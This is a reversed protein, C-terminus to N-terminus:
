KPLEGAGLAKLIEADKNVYERCRGGDFPVSSLDRKLQHVDVKDAKAKIVFVTGKSLDYEKGDIRFTAAMGDKTELQWKYGRGDASAASGSGSYVPNNTPWSGASHHSGPDIDDVMLLMLGEKWKLFTLSMGAGSSGIQEPGPTANRSICGAGAILLGLSASVLM